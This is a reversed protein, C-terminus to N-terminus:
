VGDFGKVRCVGEASALHWSSCCTPCCCPQVVRVARSANLVVVVVATRGLLMVQLLVELQVLLV